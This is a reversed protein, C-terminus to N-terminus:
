TTSSTEGSTGQDDQIEERKNYGSDFREVSVCEDEIEELKKCRKIGKELWTHFKSPSVPALVKTLKGGGQRRHYLCLNGNTTYFYKGGQKLEYVEIAM